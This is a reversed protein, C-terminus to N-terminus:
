RPIYTTLSTCSTVVPNHQVSYRLVASGPEPQQPGVSSSNGYNCTFHPLIFGPWRDCGQVKISGRDGDTVVKVGQVKFRSRVKSEM